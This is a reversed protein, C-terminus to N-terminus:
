VVKEMRADFDSVSDHYHVYSEVMPNPPSYFTLAIFAAAGSMFVLGQSAAMLSKIPQHAFSSLSLIKASFLM